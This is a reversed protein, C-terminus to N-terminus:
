LVDNINISVSSFVPLKGDPDTLSVIQLVSGSNSENELANCGTNCATMALVVIILGFVKLKM